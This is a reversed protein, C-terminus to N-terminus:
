AVQEGPMGSPSNEKGGTPVLGCEPCRGPTARLDYGCRFCIGGIPRRRRLYALAPLTVSLLATPYAYSMQANAYGGIPAEDSSYALEGSRVLLGKTTFSHPNVSSPAGTGCRFSMEAGQFGDFWSDFSLGAWSADRYWSAYIALGDRTHYANLRLKPCELALRANTFPPPIWSPM